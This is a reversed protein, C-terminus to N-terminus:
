DFSTQSLINGGIGDKVFLLIAGFGAGPKRDSKRL